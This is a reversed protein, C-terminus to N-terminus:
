VSGDRDDADMATRLKAKGVGKGQSLEALVPTSLPRSLVGLRSCQELLNGAWGKQALFRSEGATVDWPHKLHTPMNGEKGLLFVCCVGGGGKPWWSGQGRRSARAGRAAGKAGQAVVAM